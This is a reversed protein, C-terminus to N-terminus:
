SIATIRVDVPLQVKGDAGNKGPAGPPGEPGRPGPKAILGAQKRILARLLQSYAAATISDGSTANSGLSKRMALVAASTGAGYVGDAAGPSFGSDILVYQLATVEEGEDGRKLGIMDDGMNYDTNGVVGWSVTSDYTGNASRGDSGTGVSAHVHTAHPNKGTYAVWKWGNSRSAIRRNFIVYKLQPHGSTRLAEAFSSLSLGKDGLVDIACVVGYANPNHDSYGSAHDQDGIDWVTTGPYRAHIERELTQLSKALRWAM